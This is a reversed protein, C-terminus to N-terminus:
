PTLDQSKGNLEDFEGLLAGNMDLEDNLRRVTRSVTSYHDVNFYKAIAPLREGSLDQCLKMAIWRPLNKSKIGRKAKLLSQPTIQYYDAVIQVITDMSLYDKLPHKEIELGHSLAQAHAAEVFEGSGRVAPWHGKDYFKRTEEDLGQEVFGQYASESPKAGLEGFVTDKVLWEPCSAKNLYAPYSSWPYDLLDAVLPKKSEVPNRHIYRSVELLYSSAEILIAKYRGRFLSGDTRKLYNYKQTYVGNIHRMARSLNGKPTKILLHYHNGMLCYAHIEVKFRRCAQELCELFAQYYRSDHFIWQRGRGRNMVHYYANEYEIRLPRTM